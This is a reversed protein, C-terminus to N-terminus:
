QEKQRQRRKKEQLQDVQKQEKQKRKREREQQKDLLLREYLGLKWKEEQHKTIEEQPLKNNQKSKNKQRMMM